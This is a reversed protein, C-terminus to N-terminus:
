RALGRSSHAIFEVLPALVEYEGAMATLQQLADELKLKSRYLVRYANRIARIQEETFGRRKLGEINVSRPAAPQGSALVFPPVDRLVATNNAIFAHAGIRCFQHVGAYGSLIVWDALHVHGALNVANSLVINNGLVCDHAVHSYALLLNDNGIRTVGGGGATGRNITVYERLVNGAGIVLETREGQYKKDQPDGGICAFPFIRNGAGLTCPGQLVVHPGIQCHSGVTVDAGIVAYPGITVNDSIRAQPSIVALPDINVGSAM